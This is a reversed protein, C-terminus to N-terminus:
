RLWLVISESEKIFSIADHITAYQVTSFEKPIYDNVSEGDPHSLNHIVRFEGPVKKPVVGLPSIRYAPNIPPIHFPGLIRGLELEKKLKVDIVHPFEFASKMNKVVGKQVPVDFCGIEFGSTFGNIVVLKTCGKM